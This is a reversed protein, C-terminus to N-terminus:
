QQSIEVKSWWFYSEKKAWVDDSVEAPPGVPGGVLEKNKQGFIMVKPDDNQYSPWQPREPRGRALANPDGTCIFSTIYAHMTGALLEQSGSKERIKPDMVEYRMNDAHSAGGIVTSELAWHYLYVSVEPSALHATQRVPAVYAYHAYAAEIRKYQAGVGERNEKYPSNPTKLPDPYLAEITAVDEAELQPLLVKFFSTFEESKAMQKNVYLSGENGNFGTLIPVKHWKGSRWADIPRRRIIEGDIVPQFAWRLSPNYGYFVKEQAKAITETPLSRLFPIIEAEPTDKPCGAVALFEQFQEEHIPSDANRM